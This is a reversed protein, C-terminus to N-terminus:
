FFYFNKLFFFTFKSIKGFKQVKHDKKKHKKTNIKQFQKFLFFIRNKIKPNKKKDKKM